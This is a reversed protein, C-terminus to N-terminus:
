KEKRKRRRLREAKSKAAQADVEGKPVGVLLRTLADFAKWGRPKKARAM